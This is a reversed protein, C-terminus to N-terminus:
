RPIKVMLVAIDVEKKEWWRRHSALHIAAAHISSQENGGQGLMMAEGESGIDHKCEGKSSALSHKFKLCMQM